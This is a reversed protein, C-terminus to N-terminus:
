AGGWSSLGEPESTEAAAGLAGCAKLAERYQHFAQSRQQYTARRKLAAREIRLAGDPQPIGSLVDSIIKDFETLAERWQEQALLWKKELEPLTRDNLLREVADILQSSTFPKRLFSLGPPAGENASYGSMLLYRAPYRETALCAILAMGNMLPMLQDTIVLDCREEKALQLGQLGNGAEMVEHGYIVLVTRVLKRVNAEDDVVLVRM